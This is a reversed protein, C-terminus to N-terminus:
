PQIKLHVHVFVGVEGEGLVLSKNGHALVAQPKWSHQVVCETTEVVVPVVREVVTAQRRGMAQIHPLDAQHYGEVGHVWPHPGDDVTLEVVGDLLCCEDGEGGQILAMEGDGDLHRDREEQNMILLFRHPLLAKHGHGVGLAGVEMGTHSLHGLVRLVQEVQLVVDGPGDDLLMQPQGCVPLMGLPQPM